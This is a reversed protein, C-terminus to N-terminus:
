NALPSPPPPTLSDRDQRGAFYRSALTHALAETLRSIFGNFKAIADTASAGDLDLHTWSDVESRLAILTRVAKQEDDAVTGAGLGLNIAAAVASALALLGIQSETLADSLGTAGAAAALAAALVTLSTSKRARPRRHRNPRGMHHPPGMCRRRSTSPCPWCRSACPRSARVRHQHNRRSCMSM